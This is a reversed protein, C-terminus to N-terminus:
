PLAVSVETSKVLATAAAGAALDLDEAGDKTIAATLVEGGDLAVKVMTMVAGHEVSVVTGPIQNRISIRGVPATAVAVETSKILVLAASGEALGLDRVAEVTIAATIEEGGALRIKVTSMVEGLAVAVVTGEFQNRISLRV